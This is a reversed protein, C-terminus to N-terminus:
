RPASLEGRVRAAAALGQALGADAATQWGSADFPDPGFGALAARDARIVAVRSRGALRALEEDLVPGFISTAFPALVLVRACEGALDAHTPTPVGGDYCRRAGVRVAPLLGPVACTARLATAPDVGAESGLVVTEGTDADIVPMQLRPQVPWHEMGSLAALRAAFGAARDPGDPPAPLRGIRRLVAARDGGAALIEAWARLDHGAAGSPFLTRVRGLEGGPHVAHLGRALHMAVVAGASTGVVQGLGSLDVGGRALGTLVGGHWAVAAAGGGGLVLGFRM